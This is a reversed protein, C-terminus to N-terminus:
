LPVPGSSPARRTRCRRHNTLHDRFQKILNRPRAARQTTHRALEANDLRDTLLPISM